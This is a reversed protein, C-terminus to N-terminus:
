PRDPELPDGRYIARRSYRLSSQPDDVRAWDEVYARAIDNLPVDRDRSIRELREFVDDEVTITLTKM